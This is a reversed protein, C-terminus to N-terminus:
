NNARSLRMRMVLTSASETLNFIEQFRFWRVTWLLVFRSGWSLNGAPIVTVPSGIIAAIRERASLSNMRTQRQNTIQQTFLLPASRRRATYIQYMSRKM